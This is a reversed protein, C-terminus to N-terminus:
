CSGVALQLSGPEDQETLLSEIGDRALEEAAGPVPGESSIMGTLVEALRTHPGHLRHSPRPLGVADPHLRAQMEPAWHPYCQHSRAGM